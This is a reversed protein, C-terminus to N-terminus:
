GILGTAIFPPGGALWSPELHAKQQVRLSAPVLKSRTTQPAVAMAAAPLQEV